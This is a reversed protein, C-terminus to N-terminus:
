KIEIIGPVNVSLSSKFTWELNRLFTEIEQTEEISKPYTFRYKVTWSGGIYSFVYLHSFVKEQQGFRAGDLEFIAKWGQYTDNGKVLSTELEGLLKAFPHSQLIENKSRAYENKAALSRATAAVHPPSLISVVSPAPYVYMTAFIIRPPRILNYGASVDLADRDYRMIRDRVYAGVSTPFIMGSATHQYPGDVDVQEPQTLKDTRVTPCGCLLLVFGLGLVTKVFM